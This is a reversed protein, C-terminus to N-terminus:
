IQEHAAYDFGAKGISPPISGGDLWNALAGALETDLGALLHHTGAGCGPKPDISEYDARLLVFSNRQAAVHAELFPAVDCQTSPAHVILAPLRASTWVKTRLSRFDGSTVIVRNLLTNSLATELILEASSGFAAIHIKADPFQKRAQEVPARILSAIEGASRNVASRLEAGAADEVLTLAIGKDSLAQAARVLPLTSSQGAPRLTPFVIIHRPQVKPEVPVVLSTDQAFVSAMTIVSFVLFRGVTKNM